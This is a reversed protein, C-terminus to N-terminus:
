GSSSDSWSDNHARVLHTDCHHIICLRGSHELRLVELQGLRRRPIVGWMCGKVFGFTCLVGSFERRCWAIPGEGISCWDKDPVVATSVFGSDSRMSLVCRCPGVTWGFLASSHTGCIFVWFCWKSGLVRTMQKSPVPSWNSSSTRLLEESQRM